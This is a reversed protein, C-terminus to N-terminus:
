RSRADHGRGRWTGWAGNRKSRGARTRPTPSRGAARSAARRSGSWPSMISSPARPRTPPRWRCDRTTGVSSPWGPACRASGPASRRWTRSRRRGPLCRPRWSASRGRPAPCRLGSGGSACWRAAGRAADRHRDPRPRRRPLPDDVLLEVSPARFPEGLILAAVVAPRLERNTRALVARSGDDDPWSRLLRM